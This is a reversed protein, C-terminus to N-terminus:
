PIYEGDETYFGAGYVNPDYNPWQKRTTPPKPDPKVFLELFRAVNKLVFWFPKDFVADWLKATLADLALVGLIVLFLWTVGEVLWM